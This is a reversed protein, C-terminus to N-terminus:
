YKCLRSTVASIQSTSQTRTYFLFVTWPKAAIGRLLSFHFRATSAANLCNSHSGSNELCFTKKWKIYNDRCFDTKIILISICSKGFKQSLFFYQSCGYVHVMQFISWKKKCERHWSSQLLDEGKGATLSSTCGETERCSGRWSAEQRPVATCYHVANPHSWPLLSGGALLVTSKSSQFAQQFCAPETRHKQLKMDMM